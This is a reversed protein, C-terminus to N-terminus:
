PRGPSRRNQRGRHIEPAIRRAAREGPSPPDAAPRFLSLAARVAWDLAGQEEACRAAHAFLQAARGKEGQLLFIEGLNRRVEASNWHEYGQAELEVLSSLEEDRLRAGAQARLRAFETRFLPHFVEYNSKSLLSLGESFLNSGAPDARTAANLGKLALGLGVYSEIFHRRAHAIVEDLLADIQSPYDGRLHLNFAQWTLAECLPVPYPLHRAESVAAAGLRLAQDPRGELWHLNSLVGMSPI